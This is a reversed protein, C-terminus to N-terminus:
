SKWMYSQISAVLKRRIAANDNKDNNDSNSDESSFKIVVLILPSRDGYTKDFLEDGQFKPLDQQFSPGWSTSVNLVMKIMTISPSHQVMENTHLARSVMAKLAVVVLQLKWEHAHKSPWTHRGFRSIRDQKHLQSCAQFFYYYRKKWYLWTPAHKAIMGFM